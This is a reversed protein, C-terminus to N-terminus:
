RLLNRRGALLGIILGTFHGVLAAQPSATALTIWVAITIYVLYAIIQSSPLIKRTIRSVKNSAIFYGILAFIAGSAGLVGATQEVAGVSYLYQFFLIQSIGAVMGTILFFLYFKKRSAKFAVPLGFFILGTINSVLHNIGGHAFVSSVLTWYNEQLPYELVFYTEM